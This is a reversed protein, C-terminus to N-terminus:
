FSTAYAELEGKADLKAIEAEYAEPDEQALRDLAAYKGDGPTEMQAAPVRGLNPPLKRAPREEKPPPDDKQTEKGKPKPAIGMDKLFLDHALELQQRDSLNAHKPDATVEKVFEDFAIMKAKSKAIDAGDTTMFDRVSQNWANERAQQQMEGALEAKQKEWRIAGRKEEIEALGKRYESATIDGDDFRTELATAEADIAALKTDADEPARARLVPAPETAVFQNDTEEEGEEKEEGDKKAVAEDDKKGDEEGAPKKGEEDTKATATTEDGEGGEEDSLAALEEETLDEHKENEIEQGM